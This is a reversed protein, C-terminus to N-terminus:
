RRPMMPTFGAETEQNLNEAWDAVATVRTEIIMDPWFTENDLEIKIKVLRPLADKELWEDQWDDQGSADSKGFYAMTFDRVHRVLVVEEKQWEEGEAVPFFPTVAVKIIKEQNEEQTYISFLQAGSRGASASFPSVFALSQAKGQFSFSAEDNSFNNWLPEATSLYRQFFQYVVAVENVETMKKEGQEWSQACIRLSGFLLVVIISLLTMAILVEMLTFGQAAKSSSM